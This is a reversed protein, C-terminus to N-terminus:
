DRSSNPTQEPLIQRLREVLAPLHATATEWVLDSEVSGYDHALINRQGIIERWPIEPQSARWAPSVKKAAEGIIELKREVASQTKSDALYADLSMGQVFSQAAQAATLMDWLYSLDYISPQV